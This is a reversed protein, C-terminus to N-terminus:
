CYIEKVQKSELTSTVSLPLEQVKLGIYPASDDEGLTKRSPDADMITPQSPGTQVKGFSTASYTYKNTNFAL